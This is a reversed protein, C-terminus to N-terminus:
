LRVGLGIRVRRPPGYNSPDRMYELSHNGQRTFDPEGTDPYVYVVNKFNTLNLAEVFLRVKTGRLRFTRGVECDLTYNAPMRASNRIVFGVDRGSPTYPFGSSASFIFSWDTHALPYVGFLEPGERAGFELSVSANLVHTKDFDLYYLLTSEQTGPYQETESSASGKAISYTYTLSGQLAPKPRYELNVEFGKINAYDENVYLTYGVYRGSFYPMYYHTGILGTVDKYYATLHAALAQSFQHALGTEYAVTKEADLDPQGFLPERVNLDYQRNEYFYEYEPNQFFHGYAFHLKTRESVPHAIGIRPSLQWKPKVPQESAPDLPSARFRTRANAYDFRLGLNVTLYPYEIKDQVYASAEVPRQDYDNIYPFDRTPDYIDFLRLHHQKVEFGSKLENRRGMQWVLDTKLDLTHTTSKTLQLPDAKSYFEYGNGAWPVFQRVAPPVYQSTDKDVGSYYDQSFVSLRVDYFMRPSLSHTLTLIAQRSHARGRTYQEPIYKWLHNYPQSKTESYRGSLTLKLYPAPRATLKAFGTAERRYGFPLWSDRQNQEGSLFYSLRNKLLPGSVYGNTRWEGYDRFPAVGFQSTRTELSASLADAGERTVINVIGSLADGYEASFTGSLLTLEKIADNNVQTGLGGFLPDEVYMGDVLYGVENGRGGRIHLTSGRAIVGAQTALVETFNQVPLANIREQDVVAISSTVDKQIFPREARIVVEQLTITTEQLTFDVRTTLDATVKVGAVTSRSYGIMHATLSYTGPPVNIIFYVGDPGTAAGIATGEIVVNVGPLPQGTAEDSIVGTIKGTTGAVLQSVMASYVLCCLIRGVKM